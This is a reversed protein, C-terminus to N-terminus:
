CRCESYEMGCYPCYEDFDYDDSEDFDDYYDDSEDSDSPSEDSDISSEDDFGAIDPDIGRSFNRSSVENIIGQITERVGANNEIDLNDIINQIHRHRITPAIDISETETHIRTERACEPLEIGMRALQFDDFEDDTDPEDWIKEDTTVVWDNVNWVM